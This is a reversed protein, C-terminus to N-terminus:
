DVYDSDDDDNEEDPLFIAGKMERLQENITASFKRYEDDNFDGLKVSLLNFNRQIKQFKEAMETRMNNVDNNLDDFLTNTAATQASMLDIVKRDLGTVIREFDEVKMSMTGVLLSLGELSAQQQFSRAQLEQLKEDRRKKVTGNSHISSHGSDKTQSKSSRFVTSWVILVVPILGLLCLGIMVNIQVVGFIEKWTRYINMIYVINDALYNM